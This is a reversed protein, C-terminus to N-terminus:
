QKDCVGNESNDFVLCSRLVLSNQTLDISSRIMSFVSASAPYFCARGLAGGDKDLVIGTRLLVLRPGKVAKAAAEWERCVEALYDKGSPSDEVFRATDSIGALLLAHKCIQDIDPIKDLIKRTAEEKIQLAM